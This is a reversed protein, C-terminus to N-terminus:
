LSLSVWCIHEIEGDFRLVKRFISSPSGPLGPCSSSVECGPPARASKKGRNKKRAKRKDGRAKSAKGAQRALEDRIDGAICCVDKHWRGSECPLAHTFCRIWSSMLRSRSILGFLSHMSGWEPRIFSGTGLSCRDRNLALILQFYIVSPAGSAKDFKYGFFM